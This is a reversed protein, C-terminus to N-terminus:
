PGKVSTSASVLPPQDKYSVDASLEFPATKASVTVSCTTTACSGVVQGGALINLFDGSSLDLDTTATVKIPSSISTTEHAASLRLPACNTNHVLQKAATEIDAAAIVRASRSKPLIDSLYVEIFGAGSAVGKELFYQLSGAYTPNKTQYGTPESACNAKVINYFTDPSPAPWADASLGDEQLVFQRQHQKGEDIITLPTATLQTADPPSPQVLTPTPTTAVNGIPLGPILALSIYKDHFIKAFENFTEEWAAEYLDPTYGLAEWMAVDSGDIDDVTPGIRIV